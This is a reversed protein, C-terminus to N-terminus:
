RPSSIIKQDLRKAGSGLVEFGGKGKSARETRHGDGVGPLTVFGQFQGSLRVKEETSLFSVNNLNHSEGRRNKKKKVVTLGKADTEKKISSSDLKHTFNFSATSNEKL